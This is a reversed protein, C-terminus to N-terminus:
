VRQSDGDAARERGGDAREKKALGRSGKSGAKQREGGCEVALREGEGREGDEVPGKNGREIM